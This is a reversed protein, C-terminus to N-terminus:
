LCFVSCFYNPFSCCSFNMLQYIILCLSNALNCRYYHWDAYLYWCDNVVMASCRDSAIMASRRHSAILVSWHDGAIMASWCDNAIMALEGFILLLKEDDDDVTM